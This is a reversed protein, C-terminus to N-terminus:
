PAMQWETDMSVVDPEKNHTAYMIEAILRGVNSSYTVISHQCQTASFVDVLFNIEQQDRSIGANTDAQWGKNTRPVDMYHFRFEPYDKTAQIVADDDTMLFIDSIGTKDKYAKAKEMYAPMDILTAEYHKDSHRVHISICPTPFTLKSRLIERLKTNPRVAYYTLMSRWWFHGKHAYEQLIIPSNKLLIQVDIGVSDYNVTSPNWLSYNTEPPHKSFADKMQDETCTTMPIFYNHKDPTFLTMNYYLGYALGLGMNHWESGFGFPNIAGRFFRDCRNQLQDLLGQLEVREKDEFTTLVEYRSGAGMLDIVWRSKRQVFADLETGIGVGHVIM